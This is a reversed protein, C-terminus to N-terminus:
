GRKKAPKPIFGTRAPLPPSSSPKQINSGKAKEQSEKAIAEKRRKLERKGITKTM